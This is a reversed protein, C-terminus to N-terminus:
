IKGPLALLRRTRTEPKKAETIWVVAEKRRTFSLNNFYSEKGAEQLVQLMDAPIDLTREAGRQTNMEFRVPLRNGTHKFRAASWDSNVSVSSVCEYGLEYVPEWGTDRTFHSAVTGSKKPWSLWFCANEALHPICLDLVEKLEAPKTVFALVFDYQQKGEPALRFPYQM